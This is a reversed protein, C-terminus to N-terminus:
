AQRAELDARPTDLDLREARARLDLYLLVWVVLLYPLTVANVAAQILTGALWGDTVLWGTVAELLSGVPVLVLGLLIGVLGTAWLALLLTALVHSWHGAVLSWSRSLAQPWRRGEVVAAPVSVALRVGVYLGAVVVLLINATVGLQPAPGELAALYIGPLFLVTLVTPAGLVLVAVQRPSGSRAHGFGLAQWLGADEGALRVAIVRITVALLVGVVALALLVVVVWATTASWSTSVVVGDLVMIRCGRSRGCHAQWNLVGMPFVWVGVLAILTWPRRQYHDLAARLLEGAPRPQLAVADQPQATTDNM